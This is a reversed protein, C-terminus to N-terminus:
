GPGADRLRALRRGVEDRAAHFDLSAAGFSGTVQKCLKQADNTGVVVAQLARNLEKLAAPTAKAEQFNGAKIREILRSLEEAADILAAETTALVNAPPKEGASFNISM